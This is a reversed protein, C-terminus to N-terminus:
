SSVHTWSTLSEWRRARTCGRRSSIVCVSHACSCSCTTNTPTMPQHGTAVVVCGVVCAEGGCPLWWREATSLRSLHHNCRKKITADMISAIREACNSKTIKPMVMPMVLRFYCQACSANPTRHLAAERGGLARTVRDRSLLHAYGSSCVFFVSLRAFYSM